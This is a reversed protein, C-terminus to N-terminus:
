SSPVQRKMAHNPNWGILLMAFYMAGTAFVFHFFGYGYPVDDEEPADDKKFQLKSRNSIEGENQKRTNHNYFYSFSAFRFANRILELQFHQLSM